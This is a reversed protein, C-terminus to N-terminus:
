YKITFNRYGVLEKNEIKIDSVESSGPNSECFEIFNKIKKESGEIRIEVEGNDMNKVYGVLGLEKAKRETNSRFFVGQVNGKVIINISKM